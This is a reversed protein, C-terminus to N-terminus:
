VVTVLGVGNKAGRVARKLAQEEEDTWKVTLDDWKRTRFERRYQREMNQLRGMERPDGTGSYIVLLTQKPLSAHIRQIQSVTKTLAQSLQAPSPNPAAPDHFMDNRWKRANELDRMRAWTLAVGGAPIYEGAKDGNAARIIAAVVDDDDTCPIAFDAMSGFGKEPAGHDIICGKAGEHSRKMRKFIPEVTAESTGWSPGRECKLKVLDLCAHADEISNHGTTGHGNQISRSLYKQSLWKLSSKMPPGRPHPYLLSTDIIFPHTLKLAILDSNLSHGLLITHPTVLALLRTQIDSLTTSVSDLLAATMGSYPTLYDIIPKDPQVLEDMVTKGDWDIISVRTLASEGGQVTCMECDVVLIHRSATVSGKQINKDPVNGDDYNTVNTNKWGAAETQNESRRREAEKEVDLRASEYCAPHLVYENELLDENGLLYKVISTRENTWHRSEHAPKPGKIQKDRLKEEYSKPIPSQLMHHLPSHVKRDDGPMKVPWVHPFLGALPKLPDPLDESKLPLPLYDDPSRLKEQLSQNSQALKSVIGHREGSAPFKEVDLKVLADHSGPEDDQLPVSREFLAKELGPVFVIVARNIKGHHRVSVWQPSPADAICYLILSQLDALKVASQLRHLESYRLEPHKTKKHKKRQITQWEGSEPSDEKAVPSTSNPRQSQPQEGRLQALAAGMGPNASASDQGYPRKRKKGSKGM